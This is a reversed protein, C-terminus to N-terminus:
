AGREFIRQLPTAILKSKRVLSAPVRPVVVPLKNHDVYVEAEVGYVKKIMEETLIEDPQGVDFIRGKDMVVMRDAYRAALNLDHIAM